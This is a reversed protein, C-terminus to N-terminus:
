ARTKHRKEVGTKVQQIVRRAASLDETSCGALVEDAFRYYTDRMVKCTNKGRRSLEVVTARRDTPHVSRKILGAEQLRDVLTTVARPTVDLIVSLETMILPGGDDLAYLLRTRAQTLRRKALGESRHRALLPALDFLDALVLPALPEEDM